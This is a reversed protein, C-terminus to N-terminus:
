EQFQMPNIIWQKKQIRRGGKLESERYIHYAPFHTDVFLSFGFAMARICFHRDEGPFSINKIEKFNVGALLANKSILTCAGLGGVEYVGPEELQNLFQKQRISTEKESLTEERTKHFLTYFDGLWVQPLKPLTPHWKTWFIESIIDKGTTILHEITHPNLLLDSDVLFLYDYNHQIAYEIIKNKFEAVKWILSENWLHTQEHCIYNDKKDSIYLYVKQEHAKKFEQLITKSDESINDDYLCYDITINEQKLQSISNIFESLILPKQHIPSGILVRKKYDFNGDM